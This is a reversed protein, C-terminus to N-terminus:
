ASLRCARAGGTFATDAGRVSGSLGQAYAEISTSTVVKCCARTRTWKGPGRGGITLSPQRHDFDGM